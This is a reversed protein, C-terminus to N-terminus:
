QKVERKPANKAMEAHYANMSKIQDASLFEAFKKEKEARLEAVKKSRDADSLNQFNLMQMRMEYNLQIVKEAQAQTLGAKEVLGPAQKEIVQQLTPAAPPTQPDGAQAHSTSSILAGLILTLFFFKKM